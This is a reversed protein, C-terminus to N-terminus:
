GVSGEAEAVAPLALVSVGALLGLASSFDRVPTVESCWHFVNEQEGVLIVPIGHALALGTEVHRGGRGTRHCARPNHLIMVDAARLDEMDEEAFRRRQEDSGADASIEHGGNIWRATVM